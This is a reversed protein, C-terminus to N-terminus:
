VKTSMPVTRRHIHVARRLRLSATRCGRLKWRPSMPPDLRECYMLLGVLVMGTLHWQTLSGAFLMLAWCSGICWMGHELGFRLVDIDAAWGFAALPRHEHCQNLCRQKLPSVQWLCAVLAIFGAQFAADRIGRNLVVELAKLALCAIMWITVYGTLFLLASRRQRDSFSSIRVHLLPQLSLPMMMAVIMLLWGMSVSVIWDAVSGPVWGSSCMMAAPDPGSWLPAAVMAVWATCSALCLHFRIKGAESRNYFM